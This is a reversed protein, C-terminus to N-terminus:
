SVNLILELVEVSGDPYTVTAKVIHKGAELTVSGDAPQGDFQWTTSVITLGAPVSVELSFVDGASYSGKGPDTISPIGM